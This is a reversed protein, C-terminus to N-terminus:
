ISTDELTELLSVITMVSAEGVTGIGLGDLGILTDFVLTELGDIFDEIVTGTVAKVVSGTLVEAIEAFVMLVSPLVVVLDWVTDLSTEVLAEVDLDEDVVVLVVSSVDLAM